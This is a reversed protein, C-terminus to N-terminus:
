VGFFRGKIGGKRREKEPQILERMCKIRIQLSAASHPSSLFSAAALQIIM